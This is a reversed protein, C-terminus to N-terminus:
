EDLDLRWVSRGFTAAYVTKRDKPDVVIRANFSDLPLGPGASEFRGTEPHWLQVGQGISAILVRGGSAIAIGRQQAVPLKPGLRHFSTGGDRSQYIGTAAAVYVDDHRDPDIALTFDHILDRPLGYGTRHFRRGGDRSRWMGDTSLAFVIDPDVSDVALDLISQSERFTFPAGWTRGGDDSTWVYSVLMGTTLTAALVLRDPDRADVGLRFNGYGAASVPMTAYGWREGGDRSRALKFGYDFSLISYLEEPQTPSAAFAAPVPPNAESDILLGRIQRTWDGGGNRTRMFGPGQMGAWVTGDAAAALTNLSQADFGRSSPVFHEGGDKSRWAGNEGFALVERPGVQALSALGPRGGGTWTRGGDRSRRAGRDTAAVLSGDALVVLDYTHDAPRLRDWGTATRHFLGGDAILYPRAPARPDFHFSLFRFYGSEPWDASIWTAGGNRSEYIEYVQHHDPGGVFGVWLENPLGAGLGLIVKDGFGAPAWHAGGDRSDYLGQYSGAVRHGSVAPDFVVGGYLDVHGNELPLGASALHWHMGGDQSAVLREYGNSATALGLLSRSDRPDIASVDFPRLGSRSEFHHWTQGGDETRFFGIQYPGAVYAVRPASPSVILQGNYYGGGPGIPRWAAAGLPAALAALALALLPRRPLRFRRASAVSVDHSSPAFSDSGSPRTKLEARLVVNRDRALSSPNLNMVIEPSSPQKV